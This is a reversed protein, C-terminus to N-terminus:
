AIHAYQTLRTNPDLAQGESVCALVILVLGSRDCLMITRAVPIRTVRPLNFDVRVVM